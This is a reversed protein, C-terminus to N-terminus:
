TDEEIIPAYKRAEAQWDTTRADKPSARPPGHGNGNSAPPGGKAYWDTVWAYNTPKWGKISWAEYCEKLRAGNPADGLVAILPGYAGKVPHIGTLDFIAQIAPHKTRPDAKSISKKTPAPAASPTATTTKEPVPVPVPVPVPSQRVVKDSLRTGEPAVPRPERWNEVKYVGGDRTRVRDKWEDPAPFKSPQAWQPRQHEWWNVIQLLNKNDANYLIVRGAQAFEAVAQAIDALAVDKYPFIAARLLVPNNLLRGQDDACKSFLGIWLAQQFFDLQGFWDDEWIDSSIMRRNAM